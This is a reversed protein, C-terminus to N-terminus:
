NLKDSSITVKAGPVVAGNPDTVIGRVAGTTQQASATLACAMAVMLLCALKAIAGLKIAPFRCRKRM